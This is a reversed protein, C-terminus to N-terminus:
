VPRSFPCANKARLIEFRRTVPSAYAEAGRHSDSLRRCARFAGGAVPSDHASSAGEGRPLELRHVVTARPLRAWRHGRGACRSRCTVLRDVALLAPLGHMLLPPYILNMRELSEINAGIRQGHTAWDPAGIRRGSVADCTRGTIRHWLSLGLQECRSPFSANRADRQRALLDGAGAGHRVERGHQRRAHDRPGRVLRAQHVPLM